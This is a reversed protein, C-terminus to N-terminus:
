LLSTSKNRGCARKRRVATAGKVTFEWVSLMEMVNSKLGFSFFFDGCKLGPSSNLFLIFVYRRREYLTFFIIFLLYFTLLSIPVFLNWMGGGGRWLRKCVNHHDAPFFFCRSCRLCQCLASCCFFLRTETRM